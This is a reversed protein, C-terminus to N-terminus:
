IKITTVQIHKSTQGFIYELGMSREERGNELTSEAMRGYIPGADTKNIILSSEKINHEM